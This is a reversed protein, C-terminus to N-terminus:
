QPKSVPPAIELMRELARRADHRWRDEVRVRCESPWERLCRLLKDATGMAMNRCISEALPLVTLGRGAHMRALRQVLTLETGVYVVSGAPLQEVYRIIQSTSGRADALRAAEAPTEPHVIVFADPHAARAARIAGVTFRIHVICFGKWILCRVRRLTEETVGGGPQAPDYFAYDDATLGMDLATNEGLHADPMFFLRQKQEELIWRFLRAANASTCCMGGHAGCFAKVAATSNVYVLPIWDRAVHQIRGWAKELADPMVMLAMPCTSFPEPLWITRGEGALLDASEAMFHVGCFVIRQARGAEAARRSLELSDGVVDAHALVEDKQYYHGLILLEDGMARRIQEIAKAISESNM